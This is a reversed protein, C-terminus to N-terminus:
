KRRPTVERLEIRTITNYDERFVAVTLLLLKLNPLIFLLLNESACIKFIMESCSFPL